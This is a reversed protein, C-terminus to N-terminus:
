LKKTHKLAIWGAGSKLKGWRYGNQEKTEIITYVGVPCYSKYKYSLGAGERIHLKQKSVQVFFTKNNNEKLKYPLKREALSKHAASNESVRAYCNICNQFLAFEYAHGDTQFTDMTDPLDVEIDKCELFWCWEYTVSEPLVVKRLNNCANFAFTSIYKTGEPVSYTVGAKAPPYCILWNDKPDKPNIQFLCDDMTVFHKNGKEVIFKELSSCGMFPASYDDEKSFDILSSPITITKINKHNVFVRDEVFKVPYGQYESPIVVSEKDGKYGVLMAYQYEEKIVFEFESIQELQEEKKNEEAKNEFTSVKMTTKAEITNTDILFSCVALMCCIMFHMLYKYSIKRM